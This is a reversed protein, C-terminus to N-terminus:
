LKKGSKIDNYLEERHISLSKHAALGILARYKHKFNSSNLQIDVIKVFLLDNGIKISEGIQLTLETM